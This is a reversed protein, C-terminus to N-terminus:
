ATREWDKVLRNKPHNYTDTPVVLAANLALKHGDGSVGGPARINGTSGLTFAGSVISNYGASVTIAAGYAAYGYEGTINRIADGQIGNARTMVGDLGETKFFVGEGVFLETWTGGFLAAPAKWEPFMGAITAEGPVPYQTYYSGVPHAKSTIRWDKGNWLLERTDGSQISIVSNQDLIEVQGVTGNYIKLEVGHYAGAGLRLSRAEDALQLFADTDVVSTEANSTITIPRMRLFPLMMNFTLEETSCGKPTGDPNAGTKKTGFVNKFSAMNAIIFNNLTLDIM